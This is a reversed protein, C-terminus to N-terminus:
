GIKKWVNSTPHFWFWVVGHKPSLGKCYFMKSSGVRTTDVEDCLGVEALDEIPLILFVARAEDCLWEFFNSDSKYVCLQVYDWRVLKKFEWLQGVFEQVREGAPATM